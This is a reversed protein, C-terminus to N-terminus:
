RSASSRNAKRGLAGDARGARRRRRHRRCRGREARPLPSLDRRAAGLRASRRQWGVRDGRNGGPWRDPHPRHARASPPRRAAPRELLLRAPRRHRRSSRLTLTGLRSASRRRRNYRGKPLAGSLRLPQAREAAVRHLLLGALVAVLRARGNGRLARFLGRRARGGVRRRLDRLLRGRSPSAPRVALCGLSAGFSTSPMSAASRGPLRTLAVAVVVGSLFFPIALAATSFRSRRLRRSRLSSRFRCSSISSTRWRSRRRSSRAGPLSPRRPRRRPSVTAPWISTSPGRRCGFMATSVAFFSVHYLAVVSLLRTDLIELALTALTTLFVGGLFWRERPFRSM